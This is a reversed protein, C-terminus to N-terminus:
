YQTSYGPYISTADDENLYVNENLYVDEAL